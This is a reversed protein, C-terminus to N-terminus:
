SYFEDIVDQENDKVFQRATDYDGDQFLRAQYRLHNLATKERFATELDIEKLHAITLVFWIVDVLESPLHEPDDLSAFVESVEEQLLAMMRDPDANNAKMTPRDDIFNGVIDQEKRMQIDLLTGFKEIITEIDGIYKLDFGKVLHLDQKCKTERRHWIASSKVNTGIGICGHVPCVLFGSYDENRPEREKM